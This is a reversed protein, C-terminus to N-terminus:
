FNARGSALCAAIKLHAFGSILPRSTSNLLMFSFSNECEQRRPLSREPWEHYNKTMQMGHAAAFEALVGAVSKLPAEMRDWEDDTGSFVNPMAAQRSLEAMGSLALSQKVKLV